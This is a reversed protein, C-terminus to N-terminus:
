KDLPLMSAMVYWKALFNEYIKNRKYEKGGIM